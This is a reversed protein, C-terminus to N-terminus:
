LRIQILFGISIKRNGNKQEIQKKYFAQFEVAIEWVMENYDNYAVAVSIGSSNNPSLYVDNYKQLGGVKVSAIRLQSTDTVDNQSSHNLAEPSINGGKSSGPMGGSPFAPRAGSPM